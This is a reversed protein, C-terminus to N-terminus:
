PRRGGRRDPPLGAVGLDVPVLPDDRRGGAPPAGGVAGRAARRAGLRPGRDRRGTRGGRRQRPRRPVHDGAEDGRWPSRRRRADARPRGGRHGVIEGIESARLARVASVVASWWAGPDQEAWGHGGRRDLEYGSRALALLRGDLSVLGAKVEATGLDLGLIVPELASMPGPGRAHPRTAEDLAAVAEATAVDTVLTRVIGARLAGLIPRM